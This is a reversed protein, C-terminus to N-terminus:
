TEQWQDSALQLIISVKKLDLNEKESQAAEYDLEILQRRDERSTSDSPLPKPDRIDPKYHKQFEEDDRLDWYRVGDIDIYGMYNGTIECVKKGNM